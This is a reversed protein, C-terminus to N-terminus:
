GGLFDFIKTVVGMPNSILDEMFLFLFSEQPYFPLYKEIQELYHSSDIFESQQAIGEEFTKAEM